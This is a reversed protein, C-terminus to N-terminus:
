FTKLFVEPVLLIILNLCFPRLTRIRSSSVSDLLYRELRLIQIRCLHRSRHATDVWTVPCQKASRTWYERVKTKRRM